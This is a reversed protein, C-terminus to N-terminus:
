TEIIQFIYADHGAFISLMCFKGIFLLLSLQDKTIYMKNLRQVASRCLRSEEKWVQKFFQM